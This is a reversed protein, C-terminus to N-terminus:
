ITNLITKQRKRPLFLSAHKEFGSKTNKLKEGQRSASVRRLLFDVDRLCRRDCQFATFVHRNRAFCLSHTLEAGADNMLNSRVSVRQQGLQRVVCMKARWKGRLQQVFNRSFNGSFESSHGRRRDVLRTLLVRDVINALEGRAVRRVHIVHLDIRQQSRTHLRPNAFLARGFAAAVTDAECLPESRVFEILRESQLERPPRQAASASVPEVLSWREGRRTTKAAARVPPGRTPPRSKPM